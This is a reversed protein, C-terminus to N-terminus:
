DQPFPTTRNFCDNFAERCADYMDQAEAMSLWGDDALAEVKYGQMAYNQGTEWSWAHDYTDGTEPDIIRAVFPREAPAIYETMGNDLWLTPRIDLMKKSGFSM